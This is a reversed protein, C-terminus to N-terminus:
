FYKEFAKNYSEIKYDKNIVLLASPMHNIINKYFLRANIIKTERDRVNDAMSNFKMIVRNLDSQKVQPIQYYEKDSSLLETAKIIDTLPEKLIKAIIINISIIIALVLTIGMSMNRILIEKSAEKLDSTSLYIRFLNEKKSIENYKHRKEKIIIDSLYYEFESRSIGDKYYEFIKDFDTKIFIGDVYGTDVLDKIVANITDKNIDWISEELIITLQTM